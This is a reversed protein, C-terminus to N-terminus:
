VGSSLKRRKAAARHWSCAAWCHESSHRAYLFGTRRALELATEILGWPTTLRQRAIVIEALIHVGEMVEGEPGLRRHLLLSEEDVTKARALDGVAVYREALHNLGWALSKADGLTRCHEVGLENHAIAARMDGFAELYRAKQWSQVWAALLPNHGDQLGQEAFRVWKLADEIENRDRHMLVMYGYNAFLDDSYPLMVLCQAIRQQVAHYQTRDDKLYYAETLHGYFIAAALSQTDNGLQALGELCVLILEDLRNQWRLLRCLWGYLQALALPLTGIKHALRIARHLYVEAEALNSISWYVVGLEKLACLRWRDAEAWGAPASRSPREEAGQALPPTLTDLRALARQYDSIAEDNFYAQQARDGARVLYEIAKQAANSRDYHYALQEIHPGLNGTHLTELAEAVRQHLLARRKSPLAQYVAEQVLVHRFSYEVEPTSRVQAVFALSSLAALAGELDLGPPALAVLLRPQCFRGAVAAIQLLQKLEPPLRDVRSLIVSQVTEPATM